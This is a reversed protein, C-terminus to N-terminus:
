DRTRGGMRRLIRGPAFCGTILSLVSTLSFPICREIRAANRCSAAGVVVVAIDNHAMHFPRECQLPSYRFLDCYSMCCAGSRQHQRRCRADIQYLFAISGSSNWQSTALTSVNRRALAAAHHSNHQQTATRTLRATKTTGKVIIHAEQARTTSTTTHTLQSLAPALWARRPKFKPNGNAGATDWM